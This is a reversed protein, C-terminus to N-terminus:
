NTAHKVGKKKLYDKVRDAIYGKAIGGLDIKAHKDALTVANGNIIVDHYNVHSLKKDIKASSPVKKKGSRFGVPPFCFRPLILNVKRSSEM